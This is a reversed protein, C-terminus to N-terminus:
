DNKLVMWLIAHDVCLAIAMVILFSYGYITAKQEHVAIASEILDLIQNKSM